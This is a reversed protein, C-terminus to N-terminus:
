QSVVEPLVETFVRLMNRWCVKEVQVATLGAAQLADALGPYSEIGTIGAPLAAVGDLDGGLGICDEGGVAIAHQVHRIIWERDPRPIRAIAAHVEAKLRLRDIPDPTALLAARAPKDVADHAAMYGPEMFYAALNIGMVGGRDALTRIMEDALNRPHPCIARCNSHSAIFPRRALGVVQWFATDSLHSVDVMVGLEECLEILRAGEDTLPGHAGMVTGSFANDGWAAIVHRVGLDFFHRLNEARDGLPDAGELGLLGYVYPRTANMTVVEAAPFDDRRAQDGCATRLDAATLALRLRGDSADAWGRITALAQEGYATLDGTFPHEGQATFVAFLQVCSGVALLRPLDINAPSGAVFDFGEELTALVTDCHADFFRM